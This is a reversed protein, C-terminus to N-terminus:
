EQLQKELKEVTESTPFSNLPTAQNEENNALMEERLLEKETELIELKEQLDENSRKLLHNSEKCSVLENEASKLEKLIAVVYPHSGIASCDYDGSEPAM